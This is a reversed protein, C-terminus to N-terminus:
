NELQDLEYNMYNKVVNVSFIQYLRLHLLYDLGASQSAKQFYYSASDNEKKYHFTFGYALYIFPNKDGDQLVERYKERMLDFDIDSVLGEGRLVKEM